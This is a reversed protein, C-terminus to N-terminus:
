INRYLQNIPNKEKRTMAVISLAIKTDTNTILFLSINHSRMTSEKSLDTIKINTYVSEYQQNKTGSAM